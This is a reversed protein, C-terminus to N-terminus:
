RFPALCLDMFAGAAETGISAAVGLAIVAVPLVVSLILDSRRPTSGSTDM